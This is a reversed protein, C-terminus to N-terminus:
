VIFNLQRFMIQGNVITMQPLLMQHGQRTQKFTDMFTVKQETLKFIAIDAYAGRALTGIKDEMKMLRAPGNTVASIVNTLSCGLALYKALIYPLSYVPPKFLTKVTLDTSIIDPFFGEALAAEATAFAFHNSGNAADFIIGRERAKKVADKLKGDKLVTEGTGHFVHCFIDGPRLLALLDEVPAPCDTTHVCVPCGIENAIEITKQVPGLGLSGVIPKSTRIKLGILFNKHKEFLAFIKNKDWLEPKLVEHFQTTGLGTPCVHLFSKFRIKQMLMSALFLEYNASGASGADVAATVGSPLLAADASICLDSGSGFIHNHFDILGPTVICGAADIIQSAEVAENKPPVVIKGNLVVVNQIKDINQSPDIVRGNKIVMDVRM